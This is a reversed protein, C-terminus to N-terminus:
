PKSTATLLLARLLQRRDRRRAPTIMLWLSCSWGEANADYGTVREGKLAESDLPADPRPEHRLPAEPAILEMARGDVFRAAKVKGELHKAAVEDRWPTIRRDLPPTPDAM